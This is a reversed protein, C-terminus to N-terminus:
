MTPECCCSPMEASATRMKTCAPSMRLYSEISRNYVPERDTENNRASLWQTEPLVALATQRYRFVAELEQQHVRRRLHPVKQQLVQVRRRGATQVQDLTEAEEELEAETGEGLVVAGVAHALVQQGEQLM